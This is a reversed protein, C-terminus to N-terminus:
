SINRVHGYTVTDQRSAVNKPLFFQNDTTLNVTGRKMSKLHVYNGLITLAKTTITDMNLTGSQLPSYLVVSPLKDHQFHASFEPLVFLTQTSSVSQRM